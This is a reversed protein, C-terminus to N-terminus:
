KREKRLCGWMYAVPGSTFDSEATGERVAAQKDQAARKAKQVLAAPFSRFMSRLESEARPDDDTGLDRMITWVAESM